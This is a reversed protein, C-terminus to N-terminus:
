FKQMSARTEPARTKRFIGTRKELRRVVVIHWKTDNFGDDSRVIDAFAGHRSFNGGSETTREPALGNRHEAECELRVGVIYTFCGRNWQDGRQLIHAGQHAGKIGDPHLICFFNKWIDDIAISWVSTCISGVAYHNDGLPLLKPGEIEILHLLTHSTVKQNIESINVRAIFHCPVAEQIHSNSSLTGM